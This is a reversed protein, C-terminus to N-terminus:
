FEPSPRTHGRGCDSHQQGHRRHLAGGHRQDTLQQRLAHPDRGQAQAPEERSLGRRHPGDNLQRRHVAAGPRAYLAPRDLGYRRVGGHRGRPLRPRPKRTRHDTENSTYATIYNGYTFEAAKAATRSTFFSQRLLFGLLVVAVYITFLVCAGIVLTLWSLLRLLRSAVRDREGDEGVSAPPLRQLPVQAAASNM